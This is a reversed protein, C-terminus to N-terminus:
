ENAGRYGVPQSQGRSGRWCSATGGRDGSAPGGGKVWDRQIARSLTTRIAYLTVTDQSMRPTPSHPYPERRHRRRVTGSATGASGLAAGRHIRCSLATM